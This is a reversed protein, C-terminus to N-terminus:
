QLVMLGALNSHSSIFLGGREEMVEQLNTLNEVILGGSGLIAHHM